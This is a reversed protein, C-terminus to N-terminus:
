FMTGLYPLVWEVVCALVGRGYFASMGFLVKQGCAIVRTWSFLSCLFHYLCAQKETMGASM